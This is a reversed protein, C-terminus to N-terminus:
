YNEWLLKFPGKLYELLSVGSIMMWSLLRSDIVLCSSIGGCFGHAMLPKEKRLAETLMVYVALLKCDWELAVTWTM